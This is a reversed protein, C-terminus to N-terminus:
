PPRTAPAAPRCAAPRPGPRTLLRTIRGRITARPAGTWRPERHGGARHCGFRHCGVSVV